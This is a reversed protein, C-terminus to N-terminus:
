RNWGSRDSGKGNREMLRDVGKSDDDLAARRDLNEVDVIRSVPKEKRAQIAARLKEPDIPM